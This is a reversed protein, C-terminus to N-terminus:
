HETVETDLYCDLWYVRNLIMNRYSTFHKIYNIFLKYWYWVLSAPKHELIILFLPRMISRFRLPLEQRDLLGLVRPTFSCSLNSLSTPVNRILFIKCEGSNENKKWNQYHNRIEVSREKSDEWYEDAVQAPLLYWSNQQLINAFLAAGCFIPVIRCSLTSAPQTTNPQGARNHRDTRVPAAAQQRTKDVSSSTRRSCGLVSCVQLLTAIIM